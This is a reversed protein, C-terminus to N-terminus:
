MTKRNLASKKSINQTSPSQDKEMKAKKQSKQLYNVTHKVEKSMKNIKSTEVQM